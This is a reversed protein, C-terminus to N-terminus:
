AAGESGHFRFGVEYHDEGGRLQEPPVPLPSAKRIARLVSEDFFHNGSSREIRTDSVRGDREIVIRLEVMLSGAERAVPPPPRWGERVAEELRRFYDRLEPPLRVTGQAGGGTGGGGPAPRLPPPEIRHAVREGVSRVAARAAEEQRRAEVAKRVTDSEARAERMKRLREELSSTDAGKRRSTNYDEPAPPPASKKAAKGKPPAKVAKGPKGPPPAKEPKAPVAPPGPPGREAQRFEGGGVLDVVAVPELRLGPGRFASVVLALALLLVHFAGSLAVMGKLPPPSLDPFFPPGAPGSGSM